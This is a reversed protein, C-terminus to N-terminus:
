NTTENEPNIGSGLNIVVPAPLKEGDTTVDIKDGYKKPRLKAALFKRSDVMLRSRNVWEKNEVEGKETILTDHRSDDSIEIIQEVLLDAQMERARAYRQNNAPSDDLWNYFTHVDMGVEKCIKVLGYHTTAIKECVEIFKQPDTKPKAM